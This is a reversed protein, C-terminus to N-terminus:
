VYSGPNVCDQPKCSTCPPGHANQCFAELKMGVASTINVDRLVVDTCGRPGSGCTMSVADAKTASGHFGIFSVDSVEVLPEYIDPDYQQDITIARQVNKLIIDDYSIRRAYGSGRKWTKIRAAWMTETFTSHSVHIDEVAAYSQGVGLSGVSIGHGPGCTIYSINVNSTGNNIAICDDGTSIICNHIQMNKLNAIDIGDTNPSDGPATITLHSLVAGDCMNVGIHNRPNDHLSLGSLQLGNCANFYLARVHVNKSNCPGKFSVPKLLFTRRWDIFLYSTSGYASCAANWAKAFAQSDDTKGDGVAGFSTVHLVSSSQAPVYTTSCLLFFFALIVEKIPMASTINIDNLIVNTCGKPGSCRLFIANLATSTGRVGIFSVDSVQIDQTKSLAPYFQDIAIATQVEDLIIDQFSIGRVYGSGGQWTKIRAGNMTGTFNSHSVHIQEVIGVSGGKGLSGILMVIKKALGGFAERAVLVVQEM